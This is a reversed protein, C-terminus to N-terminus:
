IRIEKKVNLKRYVILESGPLNDITIDFGDSLTSGNIQITRGTTYSELCYAAERDLENLKIRITQMACKERRFLLVIGENLDSRHYQSGLWSELSRSYETLPYWDGNLIHRISLYQESLTKARNLDFVSDTAPWVISIGAAIASHFSYNDLEKLYVYFSTNPIYQSLAYTSCQNVTNDFYVDSKQHTHFRMIM